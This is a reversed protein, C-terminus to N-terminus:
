TIQKLFSEGVPAKEGALYDLITAGVDAISQRTGLNVNRVGKGYVIVPVYERSHDTSNSLPDCGHDACLVLWDEDGLKKIIDPLALDFEELAKAYGEVDNRHGFKMDFDVLNAYILADDKAEDMYQLIHAIGQQNDKTHVSHLIGQGSFIDEIKGVGYVQVGRQTLRDLVSKQPPAVAYDKRNATRVFSDVEGIFPRAIVRSVLHKGVLLARATECIRYLECVPVVEEHAAIQFVSDASTYVIINGTHLHEQGLESIIETGSAVKNGIIKQGIKSEIKEIIERDFGNPYTQFPEHLVIGAMEWHGTITDKGKSLFGARMVAAGLDGKKDFYDIGDIHALGLAQLNHLRCSSSHTVVHKLTNSGEDGYEAADEMEGIGVSDLVIWIVRKM